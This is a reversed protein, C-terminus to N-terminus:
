DQKTRVEAGMNKRCLPIGFGGGESGGEMVKPTSLSKKNQTPPCSKLCIKLRRPTFQPHIVSILFWSKIKNETILFTPRENAGCRLDTIGVQNKHWNSGEAGAAAEAAEVAKAKAKGDEWSFAKSKQLVSIRAVM